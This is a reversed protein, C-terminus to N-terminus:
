PNILLDFDEVRNINTFMANHYHSSEEARFLLLRTSLAWEHMNYDSKLMREQISHVVRKTYVACLPEIYNKDHVPVVADVDSVCTLLDQLFEAKMLPMDCSLVINLQTESRRLCTYVGNMASNVPLEDPWCEYSQFNYRSEPASIVVKDCVQNLINIANELLSIGKYLLLAKDMGMRSSRGGALVIGTIVHSSM